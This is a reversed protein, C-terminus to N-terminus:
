KFATRLNFQRAIPQNSDHYLQRLYALEGEVGKTDYLRWWYKDASNWHYGRRKLTDKTEIPAGMAMVKMSPALLINVTDPVVHLMWAMALCDPLSRHADFFWGERELITGLGVSDHGLDKWPIGVMTCAWRCDNSLIREFLPRDFAANHAVVFPDDHLMSQVLNKDIHKGRVMADTIGTMSTVDLPIPIGPDQLMSLADDVSTLQGSKNYRCRVMGMEIVKDNYSLGTTECDVVVISIDDDHPERLKIPINNPMLPVRELMRFKDPSKLIDNIRADSSQKKVGSPTRWM